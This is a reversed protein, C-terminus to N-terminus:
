RMPLGARSPSLRPPPTRVQHLIVGMPTDSQFPPHGSLLEFLVCAFAYEDAAATIDRRGEAQEPAMYEPTGLIAGTVTRQVTQEALRAIGFDTLTAHDGEGVIVNAPKVDRHIIGQAHAYDLASAIQEAISLARAPPLPGSSRMLADLTEGRLFQMVIYQLGDAEGIDHIAVINPHHLRAAARAESLFREAFGPQMAFWRPLVKLAVERSLSAQYARYVVGMGGRGVEARVIFPGLQQGALSESQM